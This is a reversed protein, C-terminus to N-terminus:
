DLYHKYFTPHMEIWNKMEELMQNYDGVKFSFDSRTNILVKNIPGVERPEIQINKRPFYEQFKLLLEYKSLSQTPVLHYLGIINEKIGQWIGHALEITTIGNWYVNTFGYITGKQKMFWNFLGIGEENKDPGIISMRLTLDKNNKIEGLSKVRDYFLLGDTLAEEKYPGKKGSFVCDTSLQIVKTPTNEYYRSLYHPLYANILIAKEKYKECAEILLGICNIVVDFHQGEFYKELQEQRSVDILVTNEDFKTRASLTTVQQQQEKLYTTIVHGAMGSGGLVLIRM